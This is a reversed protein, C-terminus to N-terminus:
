LPSLSVSACPLRVQRIDCFNTTVFNCISCLRNKMQMKKAKMYGLSRSPLSMFTKSFSMTKRLKWQDLSKRYAFMRKKEREYTQIEKM